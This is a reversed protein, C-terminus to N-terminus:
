FQKKPLYYQTHNFYTNAPPTINHIDYTVDPINYYNDSGTKSNWWTAKGGIKM